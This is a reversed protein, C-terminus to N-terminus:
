GERILKCLIDRRNDEPHDIVHELLADLASAWSAAPTAWRPSSAAASPWPTSRGASAPACSRACARSKPYAALVADEGYDRLLRKYDRQGSRTDGGRRLRDQLQARRLAARAPLRPDVYYEAGSWRACFHALRAYRPLPALPARRGPAPAALGALLGWDALALRLGPAALRAHRAARRRRARRLPLGCRRAPSRMAALTAADIEFGLQAAFRVARLM